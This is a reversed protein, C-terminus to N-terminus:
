NKNQVAANDNEIHFKVRGYGRSGSGGLYDREILRIGEHVMDILAKEDDGELIKVRIDFDFKAGVVVRESQRPNYATGSKRDITNEYKAETLLEPKDQGKSLHCDGVSIRTISYKEKDADGAKANSDGFLKILTEAAARDNLNSVRNLANSGFPNRGGVGVVHHRWELLSRMKGKVSSGPIYPAGETTKVVPNDIGGIKMIDDGGGIHLGTLVEIVGKISEIRKM